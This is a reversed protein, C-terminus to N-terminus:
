RAASYPRPQLKPVHESLCACSDIVRSYQLSKTVSVRSLSLVFYNFTMETWQSARGVLRDETVGVWTVTKNRPCM